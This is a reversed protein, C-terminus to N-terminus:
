LDVGSQPFIKTTITLSILIQLLDYHRLSSRDFNFDVSFQFQNRISSTFHQGAPRNEMMAEKSIPMETVRRWKSEFCKWFFVGADTM